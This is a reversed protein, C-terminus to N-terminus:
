EGYDKLDQRRIVLGGKGLQDQNECLIPMLTVLFFCKELLIVDHRDSFFGRCENRSGACSSLLHGTISVHIMSVNRNLAM